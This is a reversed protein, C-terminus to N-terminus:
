KSAILRRDVHRKLRRNEVAVALRKRRDIKLRSVRRRNHRHVLLKRSRSRSLKVHPEAALPPTASTPLTILFVFLRRPSGLRMGCSPTSVISIEDMPIDGRITVRDYAFSPNQIKFEV